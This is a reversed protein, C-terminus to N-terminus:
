CCTAGEMHAPHSLLTSVDYQGWGENFVVYLVVCPFSRHNEIMRVLEGEFQQKEAYLTMFDNSTFSFGVWQMATSSGLVSLRPGDEGNACTALM